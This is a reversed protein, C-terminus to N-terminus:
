GVDDGSKNVSVHQERLPAKPIPLRPFRFVSVIIILTDVLVSQLM